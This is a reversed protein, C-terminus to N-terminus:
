KKDQEKKTAAADKNLERVIASIAGTITKGEHSGTKM